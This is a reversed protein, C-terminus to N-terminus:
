QRREAIADLWWPFEEVPKGSQIRYEEETIANQVDRHPAQPSQILNQWATKMEQGRSDPGKFETAVRDLEGSTFRLASLTNAVGASTAREAAVQQELVRLRARLESARERYGETRRANHQAAQAAYEVKQPFDLAQWEEHHAKVIKANDIFARKPDTREM